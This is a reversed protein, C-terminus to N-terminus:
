YTGRVGLYVRNRDYTRDAIGSGKFQSDVLDFNYGAEFSFHQDLRYSFYIGLLFYQEDYGNAGGSHFQAFQYQALLNGSLKPTIQHNVNLYVASAEMDLTPQGTGDADVVDTPSMSHRFGLTAYSGVNYNYTLAADVYPTWQDGSDVNPYCSYTAGVRASAHFKSSVDYDGGVFMTHSTSDRDESRVPNILYDPFGYIFSDGTYNVINLSYGLMAILAPQVQWRLDVPITHSMRDLRASYSGNGSQEYDWLDNEYTITSGLREAWQAALSVQGANQLYSGSSRLLLSGGGGALSTLIEPRQAYIFSDRVKLQYRPSFAHSLKLTANHIFDWPDSQQSERGEYFRSINLYSIGISTTESPLFNFGLYPTVEFGWSDKRTATSNDPVGAWNDDYFGRLAASVTWPKGKELQTLEPAYLAHLSAASLAM